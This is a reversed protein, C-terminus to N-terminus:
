RIMVDATANTLRIENPWHMIAAQALIEIGTFAPNNPVMWTTAGVGAPQPIFIPLLATMPDIVLTGFPPMSVPAPLRATSLYVFATDFASPTAYRSYAELTYPRGARLLHPAHLQHQLNSWLMLSAPNGLGVPHGVRSSVLDLDGDGDLDALAHADTDGSPLRIAPAATFLGGGDNLYLRDAGTSSNYYTNWRNGSVLDLDGDGDIDGFTVAVTVDFDNPMRVATVNAFTGTGDNLLLQDQRWAWYSPDGCGAVLDLDGDHDIDGLAVDNVFSLSLQSGTILAFNGFGDNRYIRSLWSWNAAICDLDGDGDLDGFVVRKTADNDIPMHSNTADAFTGTGDNLYLRNQGYNGLMLDLDGDRDVDGLAVSTTIDADLPMHTGTADTFSGSGDNRLLLTQGYPFLGRSGVVLDLDGDGDVDGVAFSSTSSPSSPMQASTVDSFSGVDNLYLRSPLGYGGVVLDLDGDRDVDGTALASGGFGASLPGVTAEAFTGAGDNLHLRNRGDPCGSALDADGDGDVDGLALAATDNLIAPLQSASADSFSGFGNNLYLHNSEFGGLQGGSNGLVLDSDGDGDVDGLALANTWLWLAPLRSATVDVFGGPGAQYYRSQGANGFVLDRGLFVLAKTRDLDAPMSGATADTFAGTGSNLYLRNQEQYNGTVLDLDGDGDVDGLALCTTNDYISPLHSLTGDAFSGTGDNLYLRELGLNGCVIDLDADGDIDGVAISRTAAWVAPLRAATEDVFTANGTNRYYRSQGRNGILLDAGFFVICLTEDVDAPLAAATIDTFVGNGDNRYLRNQQGYNGVVLDLDGDGDVDGWALAMTLDVDPPLHRKGLESFQQGPAVQAPVAALVAALAAATLLAHRTPVASGQPLRLPSPHVLM